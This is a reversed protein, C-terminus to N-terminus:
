GGGGGSFRFGARIGRLGGGALARTTASVRVSNVNYLMDEKIHM